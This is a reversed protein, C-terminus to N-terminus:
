LGGSGSGSSSGAGSTSPQDPPPPAGAAVQPLLHNRDSENMSRVLTELWGTIRNREPGSADPPIDRAALFDVIAANELQTQQYDQRATDLLASPVSGEPM